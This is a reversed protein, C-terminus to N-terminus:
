SVTFIFNHSHVGHLCMPLPFMAGGMRVSSVLKVNLPRADHYIRIIFALLHV